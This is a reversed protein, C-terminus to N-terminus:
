PGTAIPRRCTLDQVLTPIQTSSMRFSWACITKPSLFEATRVQKEQFYVDFLGRTPTISALDRLLIYTDVWDVKLAAEPKRLQGALLDQRATIVRPDQRAAIEGCTVVTQLKPKLLPPDAAARKTEGLRGHCLGDYKTTQPPRMALLTGTV